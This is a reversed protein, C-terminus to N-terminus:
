NWYGDTAPPLMASDDPQEEFIAALREVEADRDARCTAHEVLFRDVDWAQEPLDCGEECLDCDVSCRRVTLGLRRAVERQRANM